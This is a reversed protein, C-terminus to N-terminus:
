RHADEPQVSTFRQQRITSPITHISSSYTGYCTSGLSSSGSVGGYNSCDDNSDIFRYDTGWCGVGGADTMVCAAYRSASVDIPTGSLSAFNTQEGGIYDGYCVVKLPQSSTAPMLACGSKRPGAWYAGELMSFASVPQTEDVLLLEAGNLGHGVQFQASQIDM